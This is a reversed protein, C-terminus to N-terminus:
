SGNRSRLKARLERWGMVHAGAPFRVALRSRDGKERLRFLDLSCTVRVEGGDDGVSIRSPIACNSVFAYARYRATIASGDRSVRAERPLGSAGISVSVSDGEEIWSLVWTSDRAERRLWAEAPPEWLAGFVRTGLAGPPPLALSDARADLAVGFQQPPVWATVSDGRAALDLATGFLSEVRLRLAEPHALVLWGHAAPWGSLRRGSFWLRLDSELGGSVETRAALARAYRAELASADLAPPAIRHPACGQGLWPLLALGLGAAVRGVSRRM